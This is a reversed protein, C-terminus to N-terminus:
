SRRGVLRPQSGFIVAPLLRVGEIGRGSLRLKLIGTRTTGPSAASFVFNGLSYAVVRRKGIRRIPQLVHPHGGIVATAGAQLAAAALARQRGNELTAREVGWHFMAVVVDARRGARRVAARVAPESAGATGAGAGAAFFSAPGIDSFGVFAVRLGLRTVIRPRYASASDHGAGVPVISFRRAYRATDLMALAGYDGAHNNALNVVDIGAFRRAVGLAGPRGRFNFQKPVAFGRNSVACELNAVTVDARRLVRATGLWPWKAGYFAMATGPGDGLNVDGVAMLTVDRSRVRVEPSTAGDPLRARLIYRPRLKRPRYRVHFRGDGSATATAVRQWGDVRRREIGVAQGAPAGSGDLAIAAATAVLRPARLRLAPGQTALAISASACVVAALM